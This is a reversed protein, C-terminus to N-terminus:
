KTALYALIAPLMHRYKDITGIAKNCDNCLIGRICIECGKKKGCSCGPHNHDHDVHWGYGTTKTSGCLLCKYGQAAFRADFIEETWGYRSWLHRERNSYRGAKRQHRPRDELTGAKYAKMYHPQCLDRAYHPKICDLETCSRKPFIRPM